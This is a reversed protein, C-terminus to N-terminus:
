ESKPRTGCGYDWIGREGSPWREAITGQSQQESTSITPRSQQKLSAITPRILQAVSTKGNREGRPGFLVERLLRNYFLRGQKQTDCWGCIFKGITNCVFFLPYREIGEQKTQKTPTSPNSGGVRQKYPLHELGASSFERTGKNQSAFTTCFIMGAFKKSLFIVFFHMKERVGLRWNQLM